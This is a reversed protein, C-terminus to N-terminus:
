PHIDSQRPHANAKGALSPASTLSVAAAALLATSFARRDMMM